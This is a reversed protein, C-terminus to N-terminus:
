LSDQEFKAQDIKSYKTENLIRREKIPAEQDSVGM